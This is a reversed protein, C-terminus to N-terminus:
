YKVKIPYKRNFSAIADEIKAYGISFYNISWPKWSSWWHKKYIPTFLGTDSDFVIRLKYYSM